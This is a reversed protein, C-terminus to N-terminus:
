DKPAEKYVSIVPIDPNAKKIINEVELAEEISITKLMVSEVPTEGTHNGRAELYWERPYPRKPTNLQVEDPKIEAILDALVSAGKINVPMFMCQLAIKGAFPGQQVLKIGEVLRDFVVEDDPRNMKNLMESDWADLKCALTDVRQLAERVEPLYLMTSNTLVMVPKEYRDKILDIVEGINLALTPEGNGSLTVVDVKSWDVKELDAAVRDTSVYVKRESTINQIQGLQCYLCNFSCISTEVLLDIGLSNGFRWSYVPGYVTSSMPYSQKNVDSM